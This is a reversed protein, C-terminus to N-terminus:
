SSDRRSDEQSICMVLTSLGTIRRVIHEAGDEAPTGAEGEAM